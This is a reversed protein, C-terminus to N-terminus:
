LIEGGCFRSDATANEGSKNEGTKRSYECRIIVAVVPGCICTKRVGVKVVVIVLINGAIVSVVKIVITPIVVIIVISVGVDLTIGFVLITLTSNLVLISKPTRM